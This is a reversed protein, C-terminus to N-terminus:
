MNYKHYYLRIGYKKFKYVEDIYYVREFNIVAVNNQQIWRNIRAWLEDITEMREKYDFNSKFKFFPLHTSFKFEKIPFPYKIKDIYFDM